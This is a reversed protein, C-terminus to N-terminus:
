ASVELYGNIKMFGKLLISDMSFSPQSYHTIISMRYIVRHEGKNCILSIITDGKLLHFHLGDVKETVSKSSM